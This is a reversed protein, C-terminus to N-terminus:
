EDITADVSGSHAMCSPQPPVVGHKELWTSLWGSTRADIRAALQERELWAQECEMTTAARDTAALWARQWAFLLASVAERRELQEQAQQRQLRALTVEESAFLLRDLEWTTRAELWHRVGDSSTTRHSDYSTPSLASSEDVLRTARLQLRPLAASWRARTAMEDYDRRTSSATSVARMAALLDEHALRPIGAPLALPEAHSDDEAPEATSKNRTATKAGATASRTPAAAVMRETPIELWVSGGTDNQETGHVLHFSASLTIRDNTEGDPDTVEPM